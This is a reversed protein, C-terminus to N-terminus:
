EPREPSPRKPPRLGHHLFSGGDARVVQGTMYTLNAVAFIVAAVEEPSPLRDLLSTTALLAFHAEPDEVMGAHAETPVTGPAVVNIRIEQRGLRPALAGCLGHLAAKFSSYLPEGWGGFASASSILTVSSDLGQEASAALHPVALYLPVYQPLYNQEFSEVAAAADAMRGEAQALEEGPTSVGVLNVLRTIPGLAAAAALGQKVAVEERADLVQEIIRPDDFGATRRSLSVVQYGADAFALVTPRGIGGAGGVIVAVQTSSLEAVPLDYIM